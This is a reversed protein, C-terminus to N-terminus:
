VSEDWGYRGKMEVFRVKGFSQSRVTGDEDKTIRLLDQLGAPGVPMVMCGGNKLQRLLPDPIKGGAATVMIRDFPAYKEWGDSGDGTKFYINSFGLARLRKKAQDSLESIREVTYVRGSAFALLATQFGSGTGIELVSDTKEPSLLLTMELVLSPQSITQGFGIPLPEDLGAFAKMGEDLFRARDLRHFYDCLSERNM